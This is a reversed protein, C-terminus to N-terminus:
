DRDNACYTHSTPRIRGTVHDFKNNYYRTIVHVPSKQILRCVCSPRSTGERVVGPVVVEERCYLVTATKGWNDRLVTSLAHRELWGQKLILAM